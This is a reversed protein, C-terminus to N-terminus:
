IIKDAENHFVKEKESFERKAKAMDQETKYTKSILCFSCECCAIYM